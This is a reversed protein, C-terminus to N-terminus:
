ANVIGAMWREAIRRLPAQDLRLVKYKGRRETRVLGADSLVRVHKGIAQRTMGVGHKMILRACLEYRTQEDRQALEDLILRRTPDSLARFVAQDDLMTLFGIPKGLAQAQRRRGCNVLLNLM